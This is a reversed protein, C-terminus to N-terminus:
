YVPWDSKYSVMAIYTMEDSVDLTYLHLPYNCAELRNIMAQLINSYVQIISILTGKKLLLVDNRVAANQVVVM